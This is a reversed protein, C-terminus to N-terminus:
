YISPTNAFDIIRGTLEEMYQLRLMQDIIRYNM